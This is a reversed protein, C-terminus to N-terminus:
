GDNHTSPNACYAYVDYNEPQWQLNWTEQVPWDEFSGEYENSPVSNWIIQLFANEGAECEDVTAQAFQWSYDTPPTPTSYAASLTGAHATFNTYWVPGTSYLWKAVTRCHEYQGKWRETLQLVGNEVRIDQNVPQKILTQTPLSEGM